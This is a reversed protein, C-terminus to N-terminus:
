KVVMDKLVGSRREIEGQPAIEVFSVDRKM